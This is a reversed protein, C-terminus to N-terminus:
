SAEIISDRAQDVRDVVDQMDRGIVVVHGVKRGPRASKGYDHIKAEPVVRWAREKGIVSLSGFVNAMVGAPQVLDTSGLPLDAVARLHQEFQSTISLETFVHGSNHPRMALENVLLSGDGMQFVEVALVGVIGVKEAITRSLDNSHAVLADDVGPAPALVESCVGGKQRTEVPLWPVWEGSKRRASLLALERVFDVQEELLVPGESCWDEIDSWQNVLRVGKGDYGGVPKKAVCPFGGVAALVTEREVKEDVVGWLPQPLGLSRLHERMVIKNHTLTLADASPSVNVGIDEVEQLVVTPVHEHDFTLVDLGRAFAVVDEAVRFDGFATVAVTAPSHADEAFVSLDVGINIAAPVMMRALQGGGIVGVKRM